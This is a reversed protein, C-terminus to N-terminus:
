ITRSLTSPTSPSAPQQVVDRDVIVISNLHGEGDDVNDPNHPDSIWNGDVIFRYQHKGPPLSVETLWLGDLYRMPNATPSWNNFTGAVAVQAADAYGHLRFFTSGDPDSHWDEESVRVATAGLAGDSEVRSAAANPYAGPDAAVAEDSVDYIPGGPTQIIERRGADGPYPSTMPGQLDDDDGVEHGHELREVAAVGAGAGVGGLVGGVVAGVAGGALAGIVAGSVAGIAAGVEADDDHDELGTTDQSDWGPHFKLDPKFEEAM